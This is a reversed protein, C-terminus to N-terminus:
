FGSEKRGSQWRLFCGQQCICIIDDALANTM